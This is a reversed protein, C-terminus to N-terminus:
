PDLPPNESSRSAESRRFLKKLRYWYTKVALAISAFIGILASVVMSGTSPDLYAHAGQSFLLLFASLALSKKLNNYPM